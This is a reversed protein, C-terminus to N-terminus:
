AVHHLPTAITFSHVEKLKRFYESNKSGASTPSGTSEGSLFSTPMSSMSQAHSSRSNGLLGLPSGFLFSDERGLPISGFAAPAAEEVPEENDRQNDQDINSRSSSDEHITTMIHSPQIEVNSKYPTTSPTSYTSPNPSPQHDNVTVSSPSAPVTPSPSSSPM